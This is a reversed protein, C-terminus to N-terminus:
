GGLQHVSVAYGGGAYPEGAWTALRTQLVLGAAACWADYSDLTLVAGAPPLHDRDLGFGAVLWGGPRLHAALRSVVVAETGEAVLPVINGAMLALDYPPAVDAALGTRDLDTLDLTALDGQLWPLSPARDRAVALMSEDLDVGVCRRGLEALRIAVRGTGCGADLVTGDVPVLTACLAAEGHVDHGADALADFRAAYAEGDVGGAQSWRSM